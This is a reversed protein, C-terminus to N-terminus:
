YLASDMDHDGLAMVVIGEMILLRILMHIISKERGVRVTVLDEGEFHSVLFPICGVLAGAVDLVSGLEQGTTRFIGTCNRLSCDIENIFCLSSNQVM